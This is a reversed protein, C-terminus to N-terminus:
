ASAEKCGIAEAAKMAAVGISCGLRRAEIFMTRETEIFGPEIILAPMKTHKLFFNPGRDPDLRHWGEKVGRDRLSLDSVLHGNAALAADLGRASSPCYLTECGHGLGANVHIEVALDVELGNIWAVKSVLSAAPAMFAQHGARTIERVAFGAVPACLAYESWDAYSAGQRQPHHGISVAIRM